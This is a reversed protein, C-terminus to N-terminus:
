NLTEPFDRPSLATSTVQGYGQFQKEKTNKFM